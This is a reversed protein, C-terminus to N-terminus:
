EPRVRQLLNRKLTSDAELLEDGALSALWNKRHPTRSWIALWIISGFFSLAVLLQIAQTYSNSEGNQRLYSFTFGILGGLLLARL